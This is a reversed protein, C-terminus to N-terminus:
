KYGQSYGCSFCEEFKISEEYDYSGCVPCKCQKYSNRDVRVKKEEIYYCDCCLGNDQDIPVYPHKRGCNKCKFKRM